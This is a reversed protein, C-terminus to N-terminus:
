EKGEEFTADEFAGSYDCSMVVFMGYVRRAKERNESSPDAYVSAFADKMHGIIIQLEEAAEKAAIAEQRVKHM